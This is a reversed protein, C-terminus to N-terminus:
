MGEEYMAAAARMDAAVEARLSAPALVLVDPGWGRVWSRIELRGAIEVSWWVSGDELLRKEERPHWISEMVRAAVLPAFRLEVREMEKGYWIGWSHRLLANADLERREDFRVTTLTARRIRDIKFTRLENRTQSWAILYTGDSLIAPEFHLPEIDHEHLGDDKAAAYHIRVVIRETWGRLIAEWVTSDAKSLTREAELEAISDALTQVLGQKRIAPVVKKLATLMFAPAHTTQRIFRRLALYISLAEETRLEVNQLSENPDLRYRGWIPQFVSRRQEIEKLDRHITTVDCDLQEALEKPSLGEDPAFQLIAEVAEQRERKNSALGM